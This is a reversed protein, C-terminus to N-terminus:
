VINAFVVQILSSLFQSKSTFDRKAHLHKLYQVVFQEEEPFLRTGRDFIKTAVDEQYIEWEMKSVETYVASTINGRQRAEMFIGRLGVGPGDKPPRGRGQVRRYSRALAVWIHAIHQKLTDIQIACGDQIFKIKANTAVEVSSKEKIEGEDEDDMDANGTTDNENTADEKIKAVAAAEQDKLKKIMDYLTDLVKDCPARIQLVLAAKEQDNEPIPQSSEIRDAYKLAILTSEPNAELGNILFHLGEDQGDQSLINNEFCWEAADVWMEPWFRLAMLASKYVHLIRQRYTDTGDTKLVLPDDKEWAVWAKWLAVQELYEQDGEFGPAPPLRPLTTRQLGRTINELHTNAGRATM